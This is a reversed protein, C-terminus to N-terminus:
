LVNGENEVLKCNSVEEILLDLTRWSSGGENMAKIASEKVEKAKEGVVKGKEGMMLERVMEEVRESSVLKGGGGGGLRLAIGLEDVVMKANLGQEAMMPWALIPVGACISEMVSNWGCHSVFGKVREHELIEKQEVWERVVLGRGAVREEFGDGLESESEKSRVVWLFSVESRELGIGIERLQEGSLQAQTGFAVYVVPEKQKQDLWQKWVPVPRNIGNALVTCESLASEKEINPPKALCLPGVCWTRPGFEKNWYDAYVSELEYFSNVVMGRSESTAIVLELLFDFHPGHPEPDKFPSELDNKTLQIWPFPSLSFPEDDSAVDKHPRDRSIVASVAMAFNNMGYFVYRPIDFKLASKLTWGLFGDSIICSVQRLNQLAQEFHTQIKKTAQVFPPFLSISSLNDTCEIGAPIGPIDQPFPLEIITARTTSLSHRIFPSNSPTTFITLLFGRKFLIHALHILPITHGKAMFPFLVIHLPSDMKNNKQLEERQDERKTNLGHIISSLDHKWGRTQDKDGM